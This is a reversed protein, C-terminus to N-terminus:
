VEYLPEGTLPHDAGDYWWGNGDWWEPVNDTPLGLAELTPTIIRGDGYTVVYVPCRLLTLGSFMSSYAVLQNHLSTPGDPVRGRIVQARMTPWWARVVVIAAGIPRPAVDIMSRISPWSGAHPFSRHVILPHRGKSYVPADLYTAHEERYGKSARLLIRAWAKSGSDEPGCVLYSKVRAM